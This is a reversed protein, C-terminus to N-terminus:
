ILSNKNMILSISSKQQKKSAIYKISLSQYANENTGNNDRVNVGDYFVSFFENHKM